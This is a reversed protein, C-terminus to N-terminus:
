FALTIGFNGTVASSVQNNAIAVGGQGFWEAEKPNYGDCKCWKIALMGQNAQSRARLVPATQPWNSGSDITLSGGAFVAYTTGNM